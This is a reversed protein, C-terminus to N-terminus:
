STPAPSSTRAACGCRAARARPPLVEQTPEEMFDDREIYLERSFPVTRVGAAPDEPNNQVEMQEVQGEPYNTIVVKVPDLVAMRRARAHANLHDRVANELRGLDIVSENRTVGIEECFARLAESTFGRRRMGSITPMRPDDWGRVHKEKVLHLLNRKSLM